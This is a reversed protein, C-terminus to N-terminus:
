PIWIGEKVLSQLRKGAASQDNVTVGMSVLESAEQCHHGYRGYALVRAVHVQFDTSQSDALKLLKRLERDDEASALQFQFERGFLVLTVSESGSSLNQLASVAELSILFGSGDDKLQGQWITKSGSKLTAEVSPPFPENGRVAFASACFRSPPCLLSGDRPKSASPLESITEAYKKEAASEKYKMLHRGAKLKQLVKNRQRVEVSGSSLSVVDTVYVTDGKKLVVSSSSGPSTLRASGSLKEIFGVRM